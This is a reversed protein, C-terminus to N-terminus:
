SPRDSCSRLFAACEEPPCSNIYMGSGLEFGATRSLRLVISIYWHFHPSGKREKVPITRVILNYDPDSLGDYIRYLLSRLVEALDLAEEHTMDLFCAAHRHPVVWMHFPSLAAYLLFASFHEREIILRVRRQREDELMTCVSCARHEEFYLRAEEIRRRVNAPVVPLAIVQSHPHHLSAGAREGHNKFYIIHEIRPDRSMCTGRRQYMELVSAIEQATMLALTTNHRPHEILVEHYGVGSIRNQMGDFTYIPMGEEALAPFRNRVVRTQWPGEAPTREVELDLEENGPCFPCDTEHENHSHTPTHVRAGKFDNPRKSRESAIIVWERTVINQRLESMDRENYWMKGPQM